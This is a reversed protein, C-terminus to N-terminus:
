TGVAGDARGDALGPGFGNSCYPEGALADTEDLPSGLPGPAYLPARLTVPM